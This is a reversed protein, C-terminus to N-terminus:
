NNKNLQYKISHMTNTLPFNNITLVFENGLESEGIPFLLLVEHDPSGPSYPIAHADICPITDGVVLNFREMMGLEDVLINPDEIKYKVLFQQLQDYEKVLDEKSVKSENLLIEQDARYEPPQYQVTISYRDTNVQQIYGNETKNIHERVESRKRGCSFLIFMGLLGLIYQHKM